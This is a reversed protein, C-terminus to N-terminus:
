EEEDSDGEEESSLGHDSECSEGLHCEDVVTVVCATWNCELGIHEGGETVNPFKAYNPHTPIDAGSVVMIESSSM